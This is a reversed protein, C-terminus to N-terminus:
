RLSKETRWNSARSRLKLVGIEFRSRVSPLLLRPGTMRSLPTACQIEIRPHAIGPMRNTKRYKMGYASIYVHNPRVYATEICRYHGEIISSKQWGYRRPNPIHMKEINTSERAASVNRRTKAM